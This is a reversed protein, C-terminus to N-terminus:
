ARLSPSLPIVSLGPSPRSGTLRRGSPYAAAQKVRSEGAITLTEFVLTGAFYSRTVKGADTSTSLADVELAMAGGDWAYVTHESSVLPTAAAYERRAVKRGLVDYHFEVGEVGTAGDVQQLLGRQDWAYTTDALGDEHYDVRALRGEADYAFRDGSASLMRNQAGFFQTGGQTANGRKDLGYSAENAPTTPRDPDSGVGELGSEFEYKSATEHLKTGTASYYASRVGSARGNADRL